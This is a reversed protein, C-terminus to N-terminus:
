DDSLTDRLVAMVKELDHVKWRSIDAALERGWEWGTMEKRRFHEYVDRLGFADPENTEIILDSGDDEDKIPTLDVWAPGDGGDALVIRTRDDPRIRECIFRNMRRIDAQVQNLNMM